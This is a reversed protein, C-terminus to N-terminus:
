NRFDAQALSPDIEYLVDPPEDGRMQIDLFERLRVTLSVIESDYLTVGALGQRLMEPLTDRARELRLPDTRSANPDDAWVLEEAFALAERFAASTESQRLWLLALHNSWPGRLLQRVWPIPEHQELVQELLAAVRNRALSLRERGLVTEVARQEVLDARRLHAEVHQRLTEVAASFEIPQDSEHHSALKEVIM